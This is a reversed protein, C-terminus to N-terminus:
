YLRHYVRWCSSCDFYWKICLRLFNYIPESYLPRPESEWDMGFLQFWSHQHGYTARHHQLRLEPYEGKYWCDAPLRWSHLELHPLHVITLIGSYCSDVRRGLRRDIVLYHECRDVALEHLRCIDRRGVSRHFDLDSSVLRQQQRFDHTAHIDLDGNVRLEQRGIRRRQCPDCSCFHHSVQLLRVGQPLDRRHLGRLPWSRGQHPLSLLARGDLHSSDAGSRRHWHSDYAAAASEVRRHQYLRRNLRRRSACNFDWHSCLRRQCLVSDSHIPESKYPRRAMWLLQLWSHQHGNTARHHQLRLEPHEGQYRCDALMSISHLKLNPLHFITLIGSNCSDARDGFRWDINLLRQCSDVTLKHLWCSNWNGMSRNFDFNTSM